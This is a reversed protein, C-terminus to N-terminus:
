YNLLGSHCLLVRLLLPFVSFIFYYLVVNENIVRLYESVQVSQRQIATPKKMDLGHVSHNIAKWSTVCPFFFFSSSFFVGKVALCFLFVSKGLVCNSIRMETTVFM